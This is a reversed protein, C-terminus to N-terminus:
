SSKPVIIIAYRGGTQGNHTNRMSVSTFVMVLGVDIVLEPNANNSLYYNGSYYDDCAPDLISDPPWNEFVASADYKVVIPPFPPIYPLAIIIFYLLM